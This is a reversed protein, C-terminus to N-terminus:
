EEFIERPHGVMKTEGPCLHKKPHLIPLVFVPITGPFSPYNTVRNTPM